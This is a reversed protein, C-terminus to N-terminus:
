RGFRHMLQNHIATELLEAVGIVTLLCLTSAMVPQGQRAVSLAAILLAGTVILPAIYRVGTTDIM